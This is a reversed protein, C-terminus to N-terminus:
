IHYQNYYEKWYSKMQSVVTKYETKGVVNTTENPDKLYDYLEEAYVKSIDTKKDEWRVWITYRYRATRISYGMKKGRPYQSVSYPRLIKADSNGLVIKALSQGELQTPKSIGALDCLTPYISLFEVPADIDKGHTSPDVIFFPVHTANEFNTHKNWLGHDGLHWGHDGGFVIITNNALGKKYLADVVQGVMADVYSVCAYYGHILEKAKSDPLISNKIDSFSILPPIDTYSQLEESRHYAFSPSNAAKQRYVALPMDERKYMDWYKKPACFPLHPRKFGVALFFPQSYKYNNIFQIAGDAIAGDLYANDPVDTCETSPKVFQQIYNTVKQGKLGKSIAEQSYKDCLARTSLDQYYSLAPQPYDRNVFKNCDIYPLTWSLVDQQRDVSRPDYIKGIGAVVYGNDKFHQPLTVVDPNEDRIFTKLDWIRTHDPIMGTLLSARTPGSVAQQCYAHTFLTGLSSLRDINPTHAICDGYCGLLPKLDDVAIFLVNKKPGQKQQSPTASVFSSVSTLILGSLLFKINIM